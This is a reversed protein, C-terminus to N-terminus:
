NHMSTFIDLARNKLRPMGLFKEIEEMTVGNCNLEWNIHKLYDGQQLQGLLPSANYVEEVLTKSDCTRKILKIHLQGTLKAWVIFSSRESSKGGRPIDTDAPKLISPCVQYWVLETRTFVVM